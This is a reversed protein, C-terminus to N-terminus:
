GEIVEAKSKPIWTQFKQNNLKKIFQKRIKAREKDSAGLVETPDYPVGAKEACIEGMGTIQSAPEKLERGCRVCYSINKAMDAYGEILWAKPSEALIKGTIIRSDLELSKMLFQAIKLTITRLEGAEDRKKKSNVDDRTKCKRLATVMNDTLTDGDKVLRKHMDVFFGFASPKVVAENLFTEFENMQEMWKDSESEKAEMVKSAQKMDREYAKIIEKESPKWNRKAKMM